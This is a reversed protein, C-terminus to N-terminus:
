LFNIIFENSILIEYWVKCHEFLFYAEKFTNVSYVKVTFENKTLFGSQLAIMASLLKPDHWKDIPAETEFM